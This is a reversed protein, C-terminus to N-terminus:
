STKARWDIARVASIGRERRTAHRRRLSSCAWGGDAMSDGHIVRDTAHRSPSWGSAAAQRDGTATQSLNASRVVRPQTRPPLSCSAVAPTAAPAAPATRCRARMAPREPRTTQGAESPCLLAHHSTRASVFRFPYTSHHCPHPPPLPADARTRFQRERMSECHNTSCSGDRARPRHNGGAPSNAPANCHATTKM